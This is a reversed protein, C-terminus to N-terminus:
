RISLGTRVDPKKTKRSWLATQLQKQTHEIRGHHMTKWEEALMNKQCKLSMWIGIKRKSSEDIGSLRLKSIVNGIEM